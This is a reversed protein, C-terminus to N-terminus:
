KKRRLSLAVRYIAAGDVNVEETAPEAGDAKATLRYRAREPPLRFAFSGTGNSVRSDLKRLSGDAEVRALEVKAQNVSRGGTDFVSGRIHAISGEDVGLYLRDKLSVTKGARVEVDEMRGVELGTKRLTLGYTGPALGQFEFEGKSNTERRAVEEEGRRVTVAVGGPTANPAVKVRGSIAGTTAGEQKKSRKQAAATAAPMLMLLAACAAALYKRGPM